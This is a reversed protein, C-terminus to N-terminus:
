KTLVKKYLSLLEKATNHWSFRTARELGYRRKENYYVEDNELRLMADAIEKEDMPNVLVADEGAIEPMASTNGAILPTGCAMAELQPIGFSERLSPYLFLYAGNYLHILDKNVIYGPFSLYPKIEELHNAHLMEDIFSEKLDAILLKRRKDSSKLYLGYAKLVRVANKKPDTNGLFFFYDMTDVYKKVIDPDADIPKFYTNFGNYISTIKEEPLNLREQIRKCEFKSVTIIMKCKDLIRPVILRRYYWGMEQYWSKSSAQRKELFIIDHLTLVLPVNCYLPATNSTCHLLDPKIKAVARPLAVQEWLPYTPCHIEVIHMNDTEELCRDEGGKVLVFYENEYDLKQIQKLSELIVMDMGHKDVRFIRQAEIAIKM